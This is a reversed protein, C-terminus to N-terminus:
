IVCSLIHKYWRKTADMKVHPTTNCQFELAPAGGLTHVCFTNFHKTTPPGLCHDAVWSWGVQVVARAVVRQLWHQALRHSSILVFFLTLYHTPQHLTPATMASHVFTCCHWPLVLPAWPLEFYYWFLVLVRVMTHVTTSSTTLMCDPSLALVEALTRSWTPTNHKPGLCHGGGEEVWKPWQRSRREICDMIHRYSLILVFFLTFFHLAQTVETTDYQCRSESCWLTLIVSCLAKVFM